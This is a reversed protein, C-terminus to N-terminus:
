ASLKAPMLGPPWSHGLEARRAAMSHVVTTQHHPTHEPLWTAVHLCACQTCCLLCAMLDESLRPLSCARRMWASSASSSAAASGAVGRAVWACPCAAM